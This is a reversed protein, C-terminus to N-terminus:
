AKELYAQLGRRPSPASAQALSLRTWMQMTDSGIQGALFQHIVNYNKIQDPYEQLAQSLAHMRLGLATAALQVRM